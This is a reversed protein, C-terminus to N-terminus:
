GGNKPNRKVSVTEVTVSRRKEERLRVDKIKKQEKRVPAAVDNIRKM